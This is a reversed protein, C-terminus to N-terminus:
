AMIMDETITRYAIPIIQSMAMTTDPLLDSIFYSRNTRVLAIIKKIGESSMITSNNM